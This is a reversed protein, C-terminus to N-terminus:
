LKNKHILMTDFRQGNACCVVEVKNGLTFGTLRYEHTKDTPPVVRWGNIRALKGDSM